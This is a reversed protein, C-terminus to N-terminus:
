SYQASPGFESSGRAMPVQERLEDRPAVVVARVLVPELAVHLEEERERVRDKIGATTGLVVLANSETRGIVAIRM